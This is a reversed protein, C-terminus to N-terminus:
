RGARESGSAGCRRCLLVDTADTERIRRSEIEFASDWRRRLRPEERGRRAVLGLLGVVLVVVLIGLLDM